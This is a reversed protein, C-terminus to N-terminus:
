WKSVVKNLQLEMTTHGFIHTPLENTNNIWMLDFGCTKTNRNKNIIQEIKDRIDIMEEYNNTKIDITITKKEDVFLSNMQRPTRVRVKPYITVVSGDRKIDWKKLRQVEDIKPVITNPYLRQWELILFDVICKM